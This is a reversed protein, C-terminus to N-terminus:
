TCHLICSQHDNCTTKVHVHVIARVSCMYQQVNMGADGKFVSITIMSKTRILEGKLRNSSILDEVQSVSLSLYEFETKLIEFHRLAYLYAVKALSTCEHIEAFDRIGLCNAHSLQRQLFAACAERLNELQFLCSLSLLNQVNQITLTIKGTYLLQLVLGLAKPDVERLEVRNDKTEIMGSRFMASFYPCCAVLVVKHASFELGGAHLVVDCLEGRQYLSALAKFADMFHDKPEHVFKSEREM